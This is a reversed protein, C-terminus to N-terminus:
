EAASSSPPRGRGWKGHGDGNTGPARGSIQVRISHGSRVPRLCRHHCADDDQRFGSTQHRVPRAAKGWTQRGAGCLHRPGFGANQTDIMSIRRAFFTRPSVNSKVCRIGFLYRAARFYRVLGPIHLRFARRYHPQGFGRRLAPSHSTTSFPFTDPWMSGIPRVQRSDCRHFSGRRDAVLAGLLSGSRVPGGMSSATPRARALWRHHRGPSHQARFILCFSRNGGRAIIFGGTGELPRHHGLM